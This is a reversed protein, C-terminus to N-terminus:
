TMGVKRLAFKLCMKGEHSLNAYNEVDQITSIEKLVSPIMQTITGKEEITLKSWLGRTELYGQCSWFAYKVRMETITM